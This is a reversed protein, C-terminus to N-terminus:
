PSQVTAKGSAIDAVHALFGKGDDAAIISGVNGGGAASRAAGGGTSGTGAYFEPFETKLDDAVYKEVPTGKRNRLMPQGDDTLDFEDQKLKFLADVREARAGGKLMADKVIRDLRLTRNEATLQEARVKAPAYEKELDTRVEERMRKLDDATIGVKKGSMEQQMDAFETKISKLDRKADKTEAILEANKGKLAELQKELAHYDAESYTKEDAM